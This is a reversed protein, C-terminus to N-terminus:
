GEGGVLIDPIEVGGGGWFFFSIKVVGLVWFYGGNQVKAKLFSGLISLFSGLITWNQSSGRFIDM